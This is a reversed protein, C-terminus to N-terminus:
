FERVFFIRIIQIKLVDEGELGERMFDFCGYLLAFCLLAFDFGSFDLM